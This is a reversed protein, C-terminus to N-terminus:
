IAVVFLKNYNCINNSNPTNNLPPHKRPFVTGLLSKQGIQEIPWYM